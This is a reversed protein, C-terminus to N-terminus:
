KALQRRAIKEPAKEARLAITLAAMLGANPLTETQIEAIPSVNRSRDLACSV